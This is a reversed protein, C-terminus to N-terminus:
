TTDRAEVIEWSYAHRAAARDEAPEIAVMERRWARAATEAARRSRYAGALMGSAHGNDWLVRYIM